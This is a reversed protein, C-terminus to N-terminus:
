LLAILARWAAEPVASREPGPGMALTKLDDSTICCNTNDVPFPSALSASSSRFLPIWIRRDERLDDRSFREDVAGPDRGEIGAPTRRRPPSRPDSRRESGHVFLNAGPQCAAATGPRKKVASEFAPLAATFQAQARRTMEERWRRAVASSVRRCRCAMANSSMSRILPCRAIPPPTIASSCRWTGAREQSWAPRIWLRLFKRSRCKLADTKGSEYLDIYARTIKFNASDPALPVVRDYMKAAQAWDHLFAYTYAIESAVNANGPDVDQTKKLLELNENWKGQRRRIAASFYGIESDNPLAAAALRFEELAKEYNSEAWYYYLGLALHGEGLDPKLSLAKDANKKM